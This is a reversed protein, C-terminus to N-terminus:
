VLFLIRQYIDKNKFRRNKEKSLVIDKIRESSLYNVDIHNEKINQLDLYGKNRAWQILKEVEEKTRINKEDEVKLNSDIFFVPFKNQIRIEKFNINNKKNEDNINKSM